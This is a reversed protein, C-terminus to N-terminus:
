KFLKLLSNIFVKLNEIIASQKKIVEKEAVCSETPISKPKIMDDLYKRTFLTGPCTKGKNDYDRHFKVRELPIDYKAMLDRILEQLLAYHAESPYELDGDGAWCVGISQFNMSLNDVSVNCHAGVEDDFRCQYKKGGTVLWHYGVYYGISSKPFDREKHYTDISNLQNYSAKESIDSCHILIYRPNNKQM